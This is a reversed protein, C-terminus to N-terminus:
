PLTLLKRAEKFTASHNCPSTTSPRIPPTPATSPNTGCIMSKNKNNDINSSQPYM